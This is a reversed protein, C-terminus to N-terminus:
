GGQGDDHGIDLAYWMAVDERASKEFPFRKPFIMCPRSLNTESFHQSNRLCFYPSRPFMGNGRIGDNKHLIQEKSHTRANRVYPVLKEIPVKEFRETNTM